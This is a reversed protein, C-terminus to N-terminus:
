LTLRQLLIETFVLCIKPACGARKNRSLVVGCRYFYLRGTDPDQKPHATFSSTLKGGFTVRELTDVLGSCMLRLSYPMDSENLALLRRAHFALATNAPGKGQGVDILGLWAKLRDLLPLLAGELGELDGIQLLPWCARM